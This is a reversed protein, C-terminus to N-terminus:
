ASSSRVIPECRGTGPRGCRGRSRSVELPLRPVRRYRRCPRDSGCSFACSRPWSGSPSLRAPATRWLSGPRDGWVGGRRGPGHLCRRASSIRRRANKVSVRGSMPWTRWSSTQLGVGQGGMAGAAVFGADGFFAGFLVSRCLFRAVRSLIPDASARRHSALLGRCARTPKVRRSSRITMRIM